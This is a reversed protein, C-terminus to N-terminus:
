RIRPRVAVAVAGLVVAMVWSNFPLTFMMPLFLALAVGTWWPWRGARAGIVGAAVTGVFTPLVAALFLWEVPEAGVVTVGLMTAGAVSLGLPALAWLVRRVGGRPTLPALAVAAALFALGVLAESLLGLGTTHDGLDDGALLAVVGEAALLAAAAAAALSPVRGDEVATPSTPTPVATM